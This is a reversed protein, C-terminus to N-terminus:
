RADVIADLEMKGAKEFRLNLPIKEGPKLAKKLGVLMIHYGDGSGMTLKASPKLELQTVERMRMITGDMTMSHVEASKAVPSSITLLRDSTKGRNEIDIYAAGSSQGPVTPRAHANSVVLSTHDDALVSGAASILALAFLRTKM